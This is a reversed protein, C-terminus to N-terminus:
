INQKIYNAFYILAGIARLYLVKSGLIEEDEDRPKFSDKIPDLSQVVM